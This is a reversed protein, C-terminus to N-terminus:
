STPVSLLLSMFHVFYFTFMYLIPVSLVWPVVGGFFPRIYRGGSVFRSGVSAFVTKWVWIDPIALAANIAASIAITSPELHINIFHLAQAMIVLFAMTFGPASLGSCVGLSVAHAMTVSSIGEDLAERIPKLIELKIYGIIRPSFLICIFGLSIFVQKKRASYLNLAYDITNDIRKEIDLIM